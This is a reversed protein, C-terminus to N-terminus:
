RRADPRKGQHSTRRRRGSRPGRGRGWRATRGLLAASFAKQERPGAATAKMLPAAAWPIVPSARSRSSRHWSSAMWPRSGTIAARSRATAKLRKRAASTIDMRRETM